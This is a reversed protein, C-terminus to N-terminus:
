RVCLKKSANKPAPTAKFAIAFRSYVNHQRPAPAGLADFLASTVLVVARLIDNLGDARRLRASRGANV